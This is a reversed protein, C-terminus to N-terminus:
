NQGTWGHWISLCAIPVVDSAAAVVESPHYIQMAKDAAHYMLFVFILAACGSCALMFEGAPFFFAITCAIALWPGIALYQVFASRQQKIITTNIVSGLAVVGIMITPNILSNFNQTDLLTGFGAGMAIFRLFFSAILVPRNIRRLLINLVLFLAAAGFLPWRLSALLNTPMFLAVGWSGGIGVLLGFTFFLRQGTIFKRQVDQGAMQATFATKRPLLRRRRQQPTYSGPTM